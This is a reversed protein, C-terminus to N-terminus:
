YNVINKTCEAMTKSNRSIPDTMYFNKIPNQLRDLSFDCSRGLDSNITEGKTIDINAFVPNVKVMSKRVANLSTEADIGILKSLESFIIWEPKADGLPAVAARTRQVRGELNVYTGDKETYAPAPLIVDAKPASRDGHHGIYVVFRQNSLDIEDAGLLFLMDMQTALMESTAKGSKEPIFGIDLGGVRSAVRQMVNFGNWDDQIFGFKFGLKKAYYLVASADERALAGSGIILMPRKYQGLTECYPHQNSAIQTLLWPNDGLYKYNYNLDVKEGILAIQMGNQVFAKRLRANLIPAEHRPNSGIILCFDAEEIGKITTNFIYDSRNHNEIPSGDQRCDFNHSGIGKLFHKAAYMTEVDTLDGAIAGIKQPSSNAIKEKIANLAEEWSCPTLKGGKKIMPQDLRQYKLGDYAFRTKDAIWEENVFENLRPLIRMVENGRSDIRINSGVADLVDISETKTLEWSRAKFSYPKSTLAGVPCLDIINGSLESSISKEVYTTIQMQEGRDVAGLECTGAVDELFRVCRTCHICRTMFTKILPGMNKDEVSRKNETFRNNGKGYKMAQDQLDCEGAQDCIPCDLPHNILLFEMVGERMKKVEETNTHIVMGDAIPQACSAVPKPIKDVKVLCMRCNGAIELREHYCFKPIEAGAEECAQLVTYHNPVEVVKGNVTVSIM